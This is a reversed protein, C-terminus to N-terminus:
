VHSRCQTGLPRQPDTLYEQSRKEGNVKLRLLKEREERLSKLRAQIKEKYEQAAEEIAVVTRARHARSRDCVVSIPTQDEECVLKLAERTGCPGQCPSLRILASKVGQWNMSKKQEKSMLELAEELEKRLPGLAEQLKVPASREINPDHEEFLSMAAELHQFAEALVKITLVKRPPTEQVTPADEQEEAVKQQEWEILDENTLEESHSALLEEVDKPAIDLHLDKGM